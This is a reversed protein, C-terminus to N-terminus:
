RVHIAKHSKAPTPSSRTGDCEEGADDDYDYSRENNRFVLPAIWQCEWVLGLVWSIIGNLLSPRLYEMSIGDPLIWGFLVPQQYFGFQRDGAQVIATGEPGPSQAPVSSGPTGQTPCRH